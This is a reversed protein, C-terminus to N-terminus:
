IEKILLYTLNSNTGTTVIVSDNESAITRVALYIKDGAELEMFYRSLINYYGINFISQFSQYDLSYNNKILLSGFNNITPTSSFYLCINSIVEVNIKKEDCCM